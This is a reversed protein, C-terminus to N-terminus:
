FFAFLVTDLVPPLLIGMTRIMPIGKQRFDQTWQIYYFETIKDLEEKTILQEKPEVVWIREQLVCLIFTPLDITSFVKMMNVGELKLCLSRRLYGIMNAIPFWDPHADWVSLGSPNEKKAESEICSIIESGTRKLNEGIFRSKFDDILIGRSVECFMCSKCDKVYEEFSEKYKIDKKMKQVYEALAELFICPLVRKCALRKIDDLSVKRLNYIDCWFTLIKSARNLHSQVIPEVLTSM